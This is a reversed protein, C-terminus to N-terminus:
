QTFRTDHSIKFCPANVHCKATFGSFAKHASRHMSPRGTSLGHRFDSLFIAALNHRFRRYHSIKLATQTRAPSAWPRSWMTSLEADSFIAPPEPSHINLISRGGVSVSQRHLRSIALFEPSLRREGHPNFKDRWCAISNSCRLLAPNPQIFTTMRAPPRPERSASSVCTRGLGITSIPPWGIKHCMM